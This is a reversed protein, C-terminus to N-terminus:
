EVFEIKKAIPTISYYTSVVPLDVTEGAAVEKYLIFLQPLPRTTRKGSDDVTVTEGSLHTAPMLRWGKAYLEGLMKGFASSCHSIIYIRGDGCATVRGRPSQQSKSGTRTIATEFGKFQPPYNASLFQDDRDIWMRAGETLTSKEYGAGELKVTIQSPLEVYDRASPYYNGSDTRFPALPLGEASFLTGTAENFCYRVYVPDPMGDAYLTVSRGSADLEAVAPVFEISKGNDRGLQFGHLVEGRVELRTPLNRFYVTVKDGVVKHSAYAPSRFVVDRGYHGGLACAALREGVTRKCRPHIDGPIDSLDNTVVYEVNDLMDAAASQSERLVAGRAGYYIYPAIQVIYFPMDYNRFGNRWSDILAVLEDKYGMAGVNVNSCGQYWITGAISMRLLPHINANYMWSEKNQWKGKSRNIVALVRKIMKSQPSNEITNKSLWGEIFTGGLSANILGVPVDLESQLKKGFAYGVASFQGLSAADCIKWSADKINEQPEAAFKHGTDFLRLRDNAPLKMDEILDTTRRVSWQMNSQGACLWVEGILINKLEVSKGAVSIKLTQAEYGGAPTKLKVSWRGDGDSKIKMPKKLWSAEVTMKESPLAWGWIECGSNQQLVMNDGIYSPLKISQAAVISVSLM